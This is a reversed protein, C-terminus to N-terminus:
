LEQTAEELRRFRVGRQVWDPHNKKYIEVCESCLKFETGHSNTAIWKAERDHSTPLGRTVDLECNM